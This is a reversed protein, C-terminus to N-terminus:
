RVVPQALTGRVKMDVTGDPRLRLGASRLAPRINRDSVELRVDLDLPATWPSPGAAAGGDVRASIMPGDLAVGDVDLSGDEGFRLQGRLEAYPIAMPLAGAQVSGDRAEFRAEGVPGRGAFRLDADLDLRGRLSLGGGLRDLPLRDLAVGRLKGDWGVPEDLVLTGSASGLDAEADV